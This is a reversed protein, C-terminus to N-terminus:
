EPIEQEILKIFEEREEPTLDEVEQYPDYQYYPAPEEQATAQPSPRFFILYGLSIVGLSAAIPVVIHYPFKKEMKEHCIREHVSFVFNEWYTEHFRGICTEAEEYTCASMCEVVFRYERRCLDCNQIHEHVLAADEPSLEGLVLDIIKEQVDICKIHTM